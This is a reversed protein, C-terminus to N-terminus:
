TIDWHEVEPLPISKFPIPLQQVETKKLKLQHAFPQKPDLLRLVRKLLIKGDVVYECAAEKKLHVFFAERPGTWALAVHHPLGGNMSASLVKRGIIAECKRIKKQGVKQKQDSM